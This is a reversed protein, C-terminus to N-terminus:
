HRLLARDFAAKPAASQRREASRSLAEPAFTGARRVDVPLDATVDHLVRRGPQGPQHLVPSRVVARLSRVARRRASITSIARRGVLASITSRSALRGTVSTGADGASASACSGSPSHREPHDDEVGRRGDVEEEGGLAGGADRLHQARGALRV